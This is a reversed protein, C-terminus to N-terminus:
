PKCNKCPVHGAKVAEERTNYYVMNAPKMTKVSKCALKHFPKGSKKNAVYQGTAAPVAAPAPTQASVSVGTCVLLSFMLPLLVRAKVQNFM